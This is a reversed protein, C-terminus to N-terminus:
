PLPLPVPPPEWIVGFQPHGPVTSLESRKSFLHSSSLQIDFQLIKRVAQLPLKLLATM